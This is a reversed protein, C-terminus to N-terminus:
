NLALVVIQSTKLGPDPSKSSMLEIVLRDGAEAHQLLKTINFNEGPQRYTLEQLPRSGRARFIRVVEFAPLQSNGERELKLLVEDLLQYDKLSIGSRQNVEVNNISFTPQQALCIRSSLLLVALLLLPFPLFSKKYM